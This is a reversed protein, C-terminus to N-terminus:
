LSVQQINAPCWMNMSSSYVELFTNKNWEQRQKQENKDYNGMQGTGMANGNSNNDNTSENNNNKKNNDNNTKSDDDIIKKKSKKKSAIRKVSPKKQATPKKPIAKKPIKKNGNKIKKVQDVRCYIGFKSKFDCSFYSVGRVTGDCTGTEEEM